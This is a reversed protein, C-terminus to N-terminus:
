LMLILFSLNAHSTVPSCLCHSCLFSLLGVLAPSRIPIFKSLLAVDPTHIGQKMANEINVCLHPTVVHSILLSAGIELGPHRRVQIFGLLRDLGRTEDSAPIDLVPDRRDRESEHTRTPKFPVPM